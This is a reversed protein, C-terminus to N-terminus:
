ATRWSGGVDKAMREADETNFYKLSIVGGTQEQLCIFRGADKADRVFWRGDSKPWGSPGLGWAAPYHIGVVVSDPRDPTTVFVEYVGRPRTKPTQAV